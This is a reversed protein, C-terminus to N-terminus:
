SFFYTVQSNSLRLLLAPIAFLSLFVKIGELRSNLRKWVTFTTIWFGVDKSFCQLAISLGQFMSSDFDFPTALILSTVAVLAIEEVESFM